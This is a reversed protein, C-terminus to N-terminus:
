RNPNTKEFRNQQHATSGQPASHHATSCAFRSNPNTQEFFRTQQHATTRQPAGHHATSCEFRSNPNTQEFGNQPHVLICASADPHMRICSRIHEFDCIHRPDPTNM